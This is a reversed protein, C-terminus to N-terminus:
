IIQRGTLIKQAANYEASKYKEFIKKAREVNGYVKWYGSTLLNESNRNKIFGEVDDPPYDLFIGVEHPITNNFNFNRQLCDLCKDVDPAPYDFRKLLECAKFNSLAKKLLDRRFILVLANKSKSFKNLLVCEIKYPELWKRANLNWVPKIDHEGYKFNIMCAAKIGTITPAGFCFLVGHVFKEPESNKLMRMLNQIVCSNNECPM